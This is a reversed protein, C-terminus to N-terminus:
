GDPCRAGLRHTSPNPQVGPLRVPQLDGPQLRRHVSPRLNVFSSLSSITDSEATFGHPYAPEAMEQKAKALDYPYSPLSQLLTIVPSAPALLDLQSPPILASVPTGPNADAKILEDKTGVGLRVVGSSVTQHGCREADTRFIQLRWGGSGGLFYVDALERHLALATV